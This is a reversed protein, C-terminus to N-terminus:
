WSLDFLSVFLIKGSLKQQKKASAGDDIRISVNDDADRSLLIECPGPPLVESRRLLELATALNTSPPTATKM